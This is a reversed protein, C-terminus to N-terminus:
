VGSPSHIHGVFTVLIVLALKRRSGVGFIGSGGRVIMEVTM